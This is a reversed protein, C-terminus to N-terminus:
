RVVEMTVDGPQANKLESLALEAGLQTPFYGYESIFRGTLPLVIGIPIEGSFGTLQPVRENTEAVQNDTLIGLLQDCGSICTVLVVVAFVLALRTKNSM